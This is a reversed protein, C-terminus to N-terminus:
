RRRSPGRGARAPKKKAVTRRATKRRVPAAKKVRSKAAVRKAPKVKAIKKKPPKVKAIKKKTPKPKPKARRRPRLAELAELGLASRARNWFAIRDELGNLGGNIRRTIDRFAQATGLDALANLGRTGWFWAAALAGALPDQLRDPEAELDIGIAAGCARYNARGTLQIPGRGRYRWGDGSEESGNGNRNAYARNAIQEPKRECAKAEADTRFYKPFTLRLGKWGYNLNEETARLQNSEHALQALFAAQRAPTSIEFKGMADELPQLFRDAAPGSGPMISRLQDLGLM